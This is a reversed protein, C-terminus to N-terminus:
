ISNKESLYSALHTTSQQLVAKKKSSQQKLSLNLAAQLMRTDRSYLKKELHERLIWALSGYFLVPLYNVQFFDRKIRDLLASKWAILLKDMAASVQGIPINVDSKTLSIKSGLYIFQNVMKLPKGSPFIVSGQKNFYMFDTKKKKKQIQMFVLEGQQKKLIIKIQLSYFTPLMIQMQSLNWSSFIDM